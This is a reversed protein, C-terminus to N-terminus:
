KSSETIMFLCLNPPSIAPCTPRGVFVSDGLGPTIRVVTGVDVIVVETASNYPVLTVQECDTTLM